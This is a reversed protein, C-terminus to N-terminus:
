VLAWEEGDNKAVGEKKLKLLHSQVSNGAAAHLFEPVDVYIRKVMDPIKTLGAGLADLV